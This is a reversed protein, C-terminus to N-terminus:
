MRACVNKHTHTHTHTHTHKHTNTSRVAYFFMSGAVDWAKDINDVSLVRANEWQDYVCVCM